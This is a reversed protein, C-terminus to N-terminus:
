VNGETKLRKNEITGAYENEVVVTEGSNDESENNQQTIGYSERIFDLIHNLSLDNELPTPNERAFKVLDALSLVDELKKGTEKGIATKKIGDMIETTTYEMAHISFQGELYARAIDTLQTYYEKVLGSQWLKKRKLEDLADMATEFPPKVTKVVPRFLPEAAKKKKLYIYILYGLGAAIVLAIIWPLAERFTFPARLPERIDKIEAALDVPLTYVELLLPRTEITSFGTDGPYQYRFVFPPVAYFGSDFATVTYIRSSILLSNQEDPVSDPKFTKLIEIDGTITDSIYPWEIKVNQPHNIQLHLDVQDGVLIANTDFRAQVSIQASGAMQWLLLVILGTIKLKGTM